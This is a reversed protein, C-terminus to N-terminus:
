GGKRLTRSILDVIICDDWLELKEYSIDDDDDDYDKIRVCILDRFKSPTEEFPLISHLHTDFFRSKRGTDRKIESVICSLAM